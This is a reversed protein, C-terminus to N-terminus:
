PALTLEVTGPHSPASRVSLVLRIVKRRLGPPLSARTARGDGPMGSMAAIASSASDRAPQPPLPDPDDEVPADPPCDAVVVTLYAPTAAAGDFGAGGRARRSESPWGTFRSWYRPLATSTVNM